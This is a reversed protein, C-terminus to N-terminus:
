GHRRGLLGPKPVLGHPLVKLPTFGAAEFWAGLEEKTHHHQFPPSIWDFNEIVRVKFDAHVSFTLYRLLPVAGLAALPWCLAYTLRLPLRTTFFRVLDSVWHRLAVVLWALRRRRKVWGRDERLPNTSFESFKGAKGYVWVSLYGGPKVLASVAKFAKRTDATHHLVGQSYAIDFLFKKFPPRLLDGQVVHLKPYDPAVAALRRLSESLDLAVVEAGLSLAVVSYRGMGCGADLVLKGKFEGAPLQTEELFVGQDEPLSGPYRSWEYAFSDRTKLVKSDASELVLIPVGDVIPYRGKCALCELSGSQIDMSETRPFQGLEAMKLSAACCPSALYPMLTTKM